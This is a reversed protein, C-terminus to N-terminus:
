IEKKKLKKQIRIRRDIQILTELFSVLRQKEKPSLIREEPLEATENRM